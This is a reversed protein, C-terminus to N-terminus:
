RGSAAETCNCRGDDTKLTYCTACRTMGPPTGTVDPPAIVVSELVDERSPAPESVYVVEIDGLHSLLESLLKLKQRHKLTRKADIRRWASYAVWKKLDDVRGAKGLLELDMAETPTISTIEALANM